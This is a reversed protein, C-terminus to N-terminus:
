NHLRLGRKKKQYPEAAAAKKRSHHDQNEKKGNLSNSDKEKERHMEAPPRATKAM